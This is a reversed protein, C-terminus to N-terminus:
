PNLKIDAVAADDYSLPDSGVSMGRTKAEFEAAPNPIGGQDQFDLPAGTGSVHLGTVGATTAVDRFDDHVEMEIQNDAAVNDSVVGRLAGGDPMYPATPDWNWGPPGSYGKNGNMM